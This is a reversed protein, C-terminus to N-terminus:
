PPAQLCVQQCHRHVLQHLQRRSLLHLLISPQRYHRLGRHVRSHRYRHQLNSPHPLGPLVLILLLLRLDIQDASTQRALRQEVSSANSSTSTQQHRTLKAKSSLSRSRGRIFKELESDREADIMNTPPPNRVEDPNYMQNSKINGVQRM